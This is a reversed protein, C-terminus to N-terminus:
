NKVRGDGRKQFCKKVCNGCLVVKDKNIIDFIISCKEDCNGCIYELKTGIIKIVKSLLIDGRKEFTQKVFELTLKKTGGCHACGQGKQYNNFTISCIDGCKGCIYDLKTRNDKYKESLLNDGENKL